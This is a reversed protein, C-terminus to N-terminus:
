CFYWCFIWSCIWFRFAFIWCFIGAFYIRTFSRAVYALSIDLIGRVLLLCVFAYHACSTCIHLDISFYAVLMLLWCLCGVYAVLIHLCFYVFLFTFAFICLCFICAFYVCAFYVLLIYLCFLDLQRELLLACSVYRLSISLYLRRALLLCTCVSRTCSTCSIWAFTCCYFIHLCFIRPFYALLIHLCFICAFHVLLIHMHLIYWCFICLVVFWIYWCFIWMCFWFIFAFNGAFYVLLIFAYIPLCGVKCSQLLPQPQQNQQVQQPLYQQYQSYRRGGGKQFPVFARKLRKM